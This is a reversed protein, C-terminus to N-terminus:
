IKDKKDKKYLLEDIEKKHDRSMLNSVAQMPSLGNFLVQYMQETIPMEINYRAALSYAARTTRVGEVVMKVSSLAEELSKGRGIEMGARFNRSHMSTCTVFLDGVGTLGVFTLPEAGLLTGLRTIEALGRTMLAAKTNDGLGLGAAIGTGLAIINKLAGGLEVGLVDFNTYVRFVPSMFLKQVLEANKQQIGAAVVATPLGRSVEEAHSPGSLVVYQAEQDKGMEEGFVQSLRLLTNEELGKAVNVILTAKSLFPMARRLTERFAHSPVAFVAVTVEALVEKLYVSAQVNKPIVVGPLYCANTRRLNIEETSDIRRAWIKVQGGQNALLIALATGWSGAGLVAIKKNIM